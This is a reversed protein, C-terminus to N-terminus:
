KLPRPTPPRDLGWSESLAQGTKIESQRSIEHRYQEDLYLDPFIPSETLGAAPGLFLVADALLLYDDIQRELFERVKKPQDPPFFFQLGAPRGCRRIDRQLTSRSQILAIAPIPWRDFRREFDATCSRNEFGLYIRVVFFSGPYDAEVLAQLNRRPRSTPDLTKLERSREAEEPGPAFHGGGYIVLAKENQKLIQDVILRAAHADRTAVIETYEANTHVNSWVIPPEGAWVRIREQPSLGRNVERVKALFHAYSTHIVTPNLGVTDTWVQRLEGYAVADGNVYRNLIGQRSAGAFEVVVNRVTSAFRPDGIVAEYFEAEQAIGHHPETLGVISHTAFAAFVADVAPEAHDSQAYAASGFAAVLVGVAVTTKIMRSLIARM